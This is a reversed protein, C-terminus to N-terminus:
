VSRGDFSGMFMGDGVRSVTIEPSGDGPVHGTKTIIGKVVDAEFSTVTYWTGIRDESGHDQPEFSGASFLGVILLILIVTITVFLGRSGDKM